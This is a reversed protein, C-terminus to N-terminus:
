DYDEDYDEDYYQEYYPEVNVYGVTAWGHRCTGNKPNFEVHVRIPKGSASLCFEAYSVPADYGYYWNTTGIKLVTSGSIKKGGVKGSVKMTGSTSVKFTLPFSPFVGCAPGDLSYVGGGSSSVATKMKGYRALRKVEAGATSNVYKGSSNKGFPNRQAMIQGGKLGGASCCGIAVSSSYFGSLQMDTWDADADISFELYSTRYKGRYSGSNVKTKKKLNVQFFRGDYASSFGTHSLTESGVKATIKGSKSVTVKVPISHADLIGAETCAFGNFTGMVSSPLSKVFFFATASKSTKGKVGKMTVVFTGKKTPVGKFKRSAGDWKVGPPLGSVSTKWGLEPYVYMDDASIPVGVQLRYGDFDTILDPFVGSAEKNGVYIKISKTAKMGSRNKATLKVTYIGPKVSTPKSCKLLTGSKVIGKPLGSVSYAVLSGSEVNGFDFRQAGDYRYVYWANDCGFGGIGDQSKRIFRVSVPTNRAEMKFSWTNGSMKITKVPGCNECCSACWCALVWGSKPKATLTVTKGKAYSGTGTVTGSGTISCTVRYKHAALTSFVCGIAMAMVVLKKTFM